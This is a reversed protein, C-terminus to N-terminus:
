PANAVAPRTCRVALLLVATAGILDAIWDALSCSRYSLPQLTEDLAGYVGFVAIWTLAWDINLPRGRSLAFLAAGAALVAFAGCHAVKDINRVPPLTAPLKPLHTLLVLIVWYGGWILLIRTSQPRLHDTLSPASLM